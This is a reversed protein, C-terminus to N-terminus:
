DEEKIKEWMRIDTFGIRISESLEETSAEVILVVNEDFNPPVNLSTGSNEQYTSFIVDKIPRYYYKPM